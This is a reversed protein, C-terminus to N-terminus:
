GDYCGKMMMTLHLLRTSTTCQNYSGCNREGIIQPPPTPLKANCARAPLNTCLDLVTLPNDLLPTSFPTALFLEHDACLQLLRDGNDTRRADVGFRGGLHSESSSLRGVQANLDGALIVIDTSKAQRIPGSLERYFTDKEADSIGDKPMRRAGEFHLNM